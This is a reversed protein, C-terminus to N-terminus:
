VLMRFSSSRLFGGEKGVSGVLNQIYLCVCMCVCVCTRSFKPITCTATTKLLHTQNPFYHKRTCKHKRSCVSSCQVHRACSFTNLQTYVKSTSYLIFIHPTWRDVSNGHSAGVDPHASYQSHHTWFKKKEGQVLILLSGRPIWDGRIVQWM